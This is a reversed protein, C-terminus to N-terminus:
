NNKNIEMNITACRTNMTNNNETSGSASCLALPQTGKIPAADAKFARGVSLLSCLEKRLLFSRFIDIDEKLPDNM